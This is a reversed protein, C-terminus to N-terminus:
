AVRREAVVAREIQTAEILTPAGPRRAAVGAAKMWIGVARQSVGFREAARWQSTEAAFAVVRAREAASYRRFTVGDNLKGDHQM